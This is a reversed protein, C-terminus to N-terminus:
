ILTKKEEPKSRCTPCSFHNSCIESWKQVCTTCISHDCYTKESTDQFCVHCTDLTTSRHLIEHGHQFFTSTHQFEVWGHPKGDLLKGKCYFTGDKYEIFSKSEGKKFFTKKLLCGNNKYLKFVGCMKDKVYFQYYRLVGNSHFSRSSRENEMSSIDVRLKRPLNNQKGMFLVM